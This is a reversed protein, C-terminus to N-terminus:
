DWRGCSRSSRGSRWCSSSPRSSPCTSPRRRCRSRLPRRPSPPRLRGPPTRFSRSPSSCPRAWRSSRGADLFGILSQPLLRLPLVCSDVRWVLVVFWPVAWLPAGLAAELAQRDRSRGAAAYVLEDIQDAESSDTDSGDEQQRAVDLRMLLTESEEEGMGPPRVTSGSELASQLREMLGNGSDDDHGGEVVALGQAGNSEMDTRPPDLVDQYLLVQRTWELCGTIVSEAFSYGLASWISDFFVVDIVSIRYTASASPASSSAPSGLPLAVRLLVYLSFLRVLETWAVGGTLPIVDAVTSLVANISAVVRSPPDDWTNGRRSALRCISLTAQLAYVVADRSSRVALFTVAGLGIAIWSPPRPYVGELDSPTGGPQTPTESPPWAFIPLLSFLPAIVVTPPLLLFLHTMRLTTWSPIEPETSASSASFSDNDDDDQPDLGGDARKPSGRLSGATSVDSESAFVPADEIASVSVQGSEDTPYRARSPRHATSEDFAYDKAIPESSQRQRDQSPRSVGAAVM